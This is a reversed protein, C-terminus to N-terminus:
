KLSVTLEPKEPTIANVTFVLTATTDVTLSMNGNGPLTVKLAEDFIVAAGDVVAGITSDDEWGDSAVKFAYTGAVVETELTYIGLDYTFAYAEDTGWGNMDGKLYMTRAQYPIVETVTLVPSVKNSADLDFKLIADAAVEMKLDANEGTTAKVALTIAEDLIVDVSEGVIGAIDSTATWDADAIKFAHSGAAIVANLTYHNDAYIFTYGDTVGGWDSMSGKLLLDVNGYPIANEVTVVPAAPDTADLTFKYNAATAIELTINQAIDEGFVLTKAEGVVLAEEGVAAGFNTAETWNSDAIKFEYPMDVETADLAMVFTYMSDGEYTMPITNSWGNMSGKVYMVGDYLVEIVTLTPNEPDSADFTFQYNADETVIIKLNEGEGEGVMLTKAEGLVVDGETEMAAFSTAESWNLDAVKFEYPDVSAPIAAVLTFVGDNYDFQYDSGEEASWENFGGRLHLATEAPVFTVLVTPDAICADGAENLVEPATCTLSAGGPVVLSPFTRPHPIIFDAFADDAVLDLVYLNGTPNQEPTSIDYIIDQTQLSDNDYPIFNVCNPTDIVNLIWYAGFNEDIGDPTTPVGWATGEDAGFDAWSSCDANNWHHIGWASLDISADDIQYYVVLEGPGAIYSPAPMTIGNSGDIWANTDMICLGAADPDPVEPYNCQQPIFECATGDETLTEPAKCWIPSETAVNGDDDSGCGTLATMSLALMVFTLQKIYSSM